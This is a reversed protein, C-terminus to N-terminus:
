SELAESLQDTTSPTEANSASTKRGSEIWAELESQRYLVRGKKKHYPPGTGLWRWNAVTAPTARLIEAVEETTLFPDREQM